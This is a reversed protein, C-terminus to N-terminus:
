LTNPLNGGYSNEMKMATNNSFSATSMM